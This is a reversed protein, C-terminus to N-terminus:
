SLHTNTVHTLLLSYFTKIRIATSNYWIQFKVLMPWLPYSNHWDWIKGLFDIRFVLRFNSCLLFLINFCHVIHNQYYIFIFMFTDTEYVPMNWALLQDCDFTKFSTCSFVSHFNSYEKRCRFLCPEIYVMEKTQSFVAIKMFMVAAVNLRLFNLM